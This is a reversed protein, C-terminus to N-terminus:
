LGGGGGGGGSAALQQKLRAAEEKARQAKKQAAQLEYERDALDNKIRKMTEESEFLRDEAQRLAAELALRRAAAADARAAAAAASAALRANEAKLEADAPAAAIAAALSAQYGARLQLLRLVKSLAALTAAARAHLAREVDSPDDTAAKADDAAAEVTAEDAAALLRRLFPDAIGKLADHAAVDPGDDGADDADTAPEQDGGADAAAREALTAVDDNLQSWIRNICLLTQARQQERQEAQAVLAELSTIKAKHSTLQESLKNKQVQLIQIQQAHAANEFVTGM